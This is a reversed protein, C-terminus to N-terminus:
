LLLATVATGAPLFNSDAPIDILCNCGLLSLLQGSSHGEPLTVVGDELRARIFRRLSGGRGSFDAKLMARCKQAELEPCGSLKALAPRVLLEFSCLCAFPNGSLGMLLKGRLLGCLMASVPKVPIRWFLREAGLLEFVRHFIDKEGVSVGGSSILLDLSDIASEIKEAVEEPVDPSNPLLLPAFGLERLRSALLIGNSNYIKGPELAEGLPTLEDGTCLIGINLNRRVSVKEIGMIALLALHISTLRAPPSLLLTGKTIDEGRFVYNQHRALPAFILVHEGETQVDEQPVMCDCGEPFMGGTMIRAAEGSNVKCNLITGAAIFGTIRLKVPNEASANQTDDSNLAFGDLPSRDFPPNDLPAYVPEAAIRGLAQATPVEETQTLPLTRSLILALANEFELWDAKYQNM